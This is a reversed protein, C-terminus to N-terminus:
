YIPFMSTYIGHAINNDLWYIVSYFYVFINDKNAFIIFPTYNILLTIVDCSWLKITDFAM